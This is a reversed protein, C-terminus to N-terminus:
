SQIEQVMLIEETSFILDIDLIMIFNEGEKWMGKIFESKYKAGLSPSEEIENESIQLVEQVSDVLAGVTVTDGNMDITLVVICTHETILSEKLEFKIRTDVVPLVSGRLNIVGKLYVPAKPVKTIQKLQQVELVKSVQVAFKEAGLCFTLYSQIEVSEKQRENKMNKM